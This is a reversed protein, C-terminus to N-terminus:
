RGTSLLVVFLILSFAAPALGAGAALWQRGALLAVVAGALGALGVLGVSLMLWNLRSLQEPTSNPASALLLTLMAVTGLAGVLSSAVALVSSM